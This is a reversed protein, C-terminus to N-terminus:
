RPMGLPSHTDLVYKGGGKGDCVQSFPMCAGGDLPCFFTVNMCDVMPKPYTWGAPPLAEDSAKTLDLLAAERGNRYAMDAADKSSVGCGCLAVALLAARLM